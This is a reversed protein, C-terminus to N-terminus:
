FKTLRAAEPSGAFSKSEVNISKAGQGVTGISVAAANVKVEAFDSSSKAADGSVTVADASSGSPIALSANGSASVVNITAGQVFSLSAETNGDGNIQADQVTIGTVSLDGNGLATTISVPKAADGAPIQIDLLECGSTDSTSTGHSQGHGCEIVFKGGASKTVKLTKAAEALSLQASAQDTDDAMALIRAKVTIKTLGAVGKINAGGNVSVQVGAAQVEIPEGNWDEIATAVTSPDGDPLVYRTKTKVTLTCGSAFAAVTLALPALRAVSLFSGLKM